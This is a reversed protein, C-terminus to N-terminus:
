PGKRLLAVDSSEKRQAGAATHINMPYAPPMHRRQRKDPEENKLSVSPVPSADTVM